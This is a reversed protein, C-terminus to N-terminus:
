TPVAHMCVLGKSFRPVYWRSEQVHFYKGAFIIFMDMYVVHVCLPPTSTYRWENKLEVSSLPSQDLEYGSFVLSPPGRLRDLLTQFYAFRKGEVHNSDWMAWGTAGDGYQVLSNWSRFNM